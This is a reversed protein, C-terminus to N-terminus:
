HFDYVSANITQVKTFYGLSYIIAWCTRDRKSLSIKMLVGREDLRLKPKKHVMKLGFMFYEKKENKSKKAVFFNVEIVSIRKRLKILFILAM